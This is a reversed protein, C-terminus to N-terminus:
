HYFSAGEFVLSTKQKYVKTEVSSNSNWKRDKRWPVIDTAEYIEITFLSIKRTKAALSLVMDEHM